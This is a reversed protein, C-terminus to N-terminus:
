RENKQRNFFRLTIISLIFGIISLIWSEEAGTNPLRNEQIEGSNKQSNIISEVKPKTSVHNLEEVKNGPQAQPQDNKEGKKVVKTGLETIEHIPEEILTVQILEKKIVRGDQITLRYKYQRKGTKGEQLLAVTGEAKNPNEVITKDFAVDEIEILEETTITPLQKTGVLIVRTVAKRIVKTDVLTSSREEDNFYYKEFTKHILGDQGEQFVKTVGEQLTDDNRYETQHTIVEDETVLVTREVGTGVVVVKNVPHTTIVTRLHERQTEKGNVYTVQYYDTQSGEQGEVEVLRYNVPKSKDERVITNYPIGSTFSIEKTETVQSGIHIIQELAPRLEKVSILDTKVLIGDKYTLQYIKEVLGARGEQVLKREGKPINEDIVTVTRFNTEETRTEQKVKVNPVHKTGVLIITPVAERVTKSEILKSSREEDNFYQKEITKRILGDQGEQIIKTEGEPLTDDNRFETPSTIREEQIEFMTREIGSGEVLVKNVPQATIVTKLHERKAEKGNIYTVQYYDTQIGEQGEVEVLSYGVPKTKDKRIIVNYPIPSTTNIEKTETVQTGIHIIEDQVKQIEKSSILDTKILVGDKYTLQYVKEILGTRGVQVVKTEGKPLDPDEINQTKYAIKETQTDQEVKITPVHKTGVLIITPTAEKILKSDVLKTSRLEDNFYRKEITKRLLGEEGVQSIKTEGEPLTDDNRYETTSTIKDEQIEFLAREVGAGEVIVKDVAERIVTTKLHERKTETGNIYTVKYLDSKEGDQGEVETVRYGIPKTTDKRVKVTFPIPSTESAERIEKVRTGVQIIEDVPDTTINSEVFTRSTEEGNVKTVSYRNTKQGKKGAQIVKTTGAPLQDSFEKFTNYDISETEDVLETTEVIPTANGVRVVRNVAETIQHESVITRGIEKGNRYSVLFTRIIQGPTGEEDVVSEGPPLTNDSVYVTKFPVDVQEDVTRETMKSTGIVTIEDVAKPNEVKSIEKRSVEVDDEYTVEYTTTITGPSGVQTIKSYGEPQTEDKEIVKNFDKEEVVVESRISVVVGLGKVVIKNKKEKLTNENVLTRDVLEDNLYTLKYQSEIRGKEGEQRVEEYGKPKTYDYEVVTEFDVDKVETTYEVKEVASGVTIIRKVPQDVVTESTLTKGAEKGNLKRIQYTKEVSGNKGAQNVFQYTKPKTPDTRIETEYEVTEKETVTEFTETATGILVIERKPEQIVEESEIQRGVIANGVKTIKYVNVKKGPVGKQVTEKFGIPLEDTERTEIIYETTTTTRLTEVTKDGVIDVPALPKGDLTNRGLFVNNSKANLNVWEGNYLRFFGNKNPTDAIFKNDTATVKVTDNLRNIGFFAQMIDKIVAGDSKRTVDYRQWPENDKYKFTNSNVDITAANTSEIAVANKWRSKIKSVTLENNDINISGRTKTFPVKTVKNVRKGTTRDIVSAVYTTDDNIYIPLQKIDDVEIKNRSITIDGSGGGEVGRSAQATNNNVSIIYDTSDGTITNGEINLSYDNSSENNRFLIGFTGLQGNEFSKTLGEITNNSIVYRGKELPKTWKHNKENTLISIATYGRYRAPDDDDNELKSNPDQTVKNNRIVVDTMPNARNYVEIGNLRDGLSVNNEILIKNGDHIDLGKRYNYNTYNGTYTIGDNYSGAMSAAGYGTGGDLVHGNYSLINNDVVFNRQYGFMVGAVRNNHLFSNTVKNGDMIPVDPDGISKVENSVKESISSYRIPKGSADYEQATAKSSSFFVGARNFKMARVDNITVNSSDNVYIGNSRGFYSKGKRYFENDKTYDSSDYAHEVTLRGVTFDKQNQILVASEYRNDTLNTEPDHEGDQKKNFLIKTNNRSPGSGILGKVNAYNEDIVLTKKLLVTGSLMVSAGGEVENAASLAKKIAESAEVKGTTDLGFDTAKVYKGYDADEYVKTNSAAARKRRIKPAPTTATEAENTSANSLTGPALTPDEKKEVSNLTPDTKSDKSLSAEAESDKNLTTEAKSDKDSSSTETSPNKADEESSKTEKETLAPAPYKKDGQDVAPKEESNPETVVRTEAELISVTTNLPPQNENQNKILSENSNEFSDASAKVQGLQFTTLVGIALLSYKTTKKINM